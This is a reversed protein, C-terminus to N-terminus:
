KIAQCCIEDLLCKNPINKVGDLAAGVGHCITFVLASDITELSRLVIDPDVVVAPEIHLHIGICEVFSGDCM